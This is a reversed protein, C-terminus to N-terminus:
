GREVGELMTAPAARFLRSRATCMRGNVGRFPKADEIEKLEVDANVFKYIIILATALLRPM